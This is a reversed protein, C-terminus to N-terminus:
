AVAGVRETNWAPGKGDPGQISLARGPEGLGVAMCLQASRNLTRSKEMRDRKSQM